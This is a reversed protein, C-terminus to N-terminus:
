ITGKLVGIVVTYTNLFRNVVTQSLIDGDMNCWFWGKAVDAKLGIYGGPPILRIKLYYCSIVKITRKKEARIQVNNM